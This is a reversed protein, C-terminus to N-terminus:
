PLITDEAAMRRREGRELIEEDTLLTYGRKAAERSRADERACQSAEEEERAREAARRDEEAKVRDAVQRARYWPDLELPADLESEYFKSEMRRELSLEHAVPVFLSPPAGLQEGSKAAAGVLSSSIAFARENKVADGETEVILVEALDRATRGDDRRANVQTRKEELLADVCRAHGGMVARM